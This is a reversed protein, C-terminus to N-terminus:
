QSASRFKAENFRQNDGKCFTILQEKFEALDKSQKLQKAFECYYKRSLM